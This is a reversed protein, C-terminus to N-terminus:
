PQGPSKIRWRLVNLHRAVFVSPEGAIGMVGFGAADGGLGFQHGAEHPATVMSDETNQYRHDDDKITELFLFSGDAGRAVGASNVVDDNFGYGPTSGVVASESDPDCDEDVRPQYAVQFPEPAFLLHLTRQLEAHNSKVTVVSGGM